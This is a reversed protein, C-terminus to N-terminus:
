SLGERFSRFPSNVAIEDKIDSWQLELANLRDAFEKNKQSDKVQRNQIAADIEQPNLAPRGPILVRYGHVWRYYQSSVTRHERRLEKLDQETESSILGAKRQWEFDIASYKTLLDGLPLTEFNSFILQANSPSEYHRSEKTRQYDAALGTATTIFFFVAAAAIAVSIAAVVWPLTLTPIIIAATLPAAVTAIALGVCLTTLLIAKIRASQTFSKSKEPWNLNNSTETSQTPTNGSTQELM